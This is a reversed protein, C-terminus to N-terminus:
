LCCISLNVKHKVAKGLQNNGQEVRNGAIEVNAEINDANNKYINNVFHVM